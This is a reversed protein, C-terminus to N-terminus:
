SAFVASSRCFVCLDVREERSREGSWQKGFMWLNSSQECSFPPFILSTRIRLLPALRVSDATMALLQRAGPTNAASSAGQTGAPFVLHQRLTDLLSCTLCVPVFLCACGVFFPLSKLLRSATSFTLRIQVRKRWGDSVTFASKTTQEVPARKGACLLCAM